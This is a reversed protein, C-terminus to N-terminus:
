GHAELAASRREGLGYRWRPGPPANTPSTSRVNVFRPMALAGLVIGFISAAMIALHTPAGQVRQYGYIEHFAFEVAFMLVFGALILSSVTARIRIAIWLGLVGGLLGFANQVTPNFHNGM